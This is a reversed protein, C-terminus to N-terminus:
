VVSICPCNLNESATQISQITFRDVRTPPVLDSLTYFRTLTGNLGRCSSKSSPKNNQSVSQQCHPVHFALLRAKSCLASCFLPPPTCSTINFDHKEKQREKYFWRTGASMIKKLVESLFPLCRSSTM